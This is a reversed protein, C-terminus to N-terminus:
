RIAEERLAALVSAHGLLSLHNRPRSTGVYSLADRERAPLAAFEDDLEAVIVIPRELGKFTRISSAHIKQQRTEISALIKPLASQDLPRPTLLAIQDPSMDEVILLRHLLRRLEKKLGAEDTYEFAEVTRGSPGHPESPGGRYFGSALKHIARTNRVNERLHFQMLGLDDPISQRPGEQSDVSKETKVMQNDDYFVYFVSDSRDQLSAALAVWWLEEMDQGEDVLVADVKLDPRAELGQMLLDPYAEWAPSGNSVPLPLGAEQAVHACWGHFTGVFFQDAGVQSRVGASAAVLHQGLSKNYCTLLVRFGERALREAKEVAMMTKGSGAAGSIAARRTRNLFDLLRYQEATLRFIEREEDAIQVSLPNPLTTTPALLNILVSILDRDGDATPTTEQSRWYGMITKLREPLRAMDQADIIIETPADPPLLTNGSVAAQPFAVAHGLHVRVNAWGPLSKIKDLLDYKNKRVQNFPDIRHVGGDRDTTTWQGRTGDYDIRGGKVEILLVGHQPHAVIFDTEGDHLANDSRFRGIWAVSYFVVWREGLQIRLQNFMNVEASRKPDRIVQSTLEAPFIRAMTTTREVRASTLRRRAEAPSFSAACPYDSFNFSQTDGCKNAGRLLFVKRGPPALHIMQNRGEPQTRRPSKERGLRGSFILHHGRAVAAGLSQDSLRRRSGRLPTPKWTASAPKVFVEISRKCLGGAKAERVSTRAKTLATTRRRPKDLEIPLSCVEPGKGMSALLEQPCAQM